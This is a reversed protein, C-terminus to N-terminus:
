KSAKLISIGLCIPLVGILLISPEIKVRGSIYAEVGILILWIIGLAILFAGLKKM